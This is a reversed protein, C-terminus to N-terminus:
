VARIPDDEHAVPAGFFVLLEDEQLHAFKGEYRYVIPYALDLGADILEAAAPEGLRQALARSGVVDLYMATVTRREGSLTNAAQVKEKLPLPAAAALRQQRETDAPTTRGVPQGCNMCFRAGEPLVTQCNSCIM